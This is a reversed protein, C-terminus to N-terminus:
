LSPHVYSHYSHGVAAVDHEGAILSSPDEYVREKKEPYRFGLHQLVRYDLPRQMGYHDRLESFGDIDFTYPCSLSDRHKIMRISVGNIRDNRKYTCIIILKQSSMKHFLGHVRSAYFNMAEKLM